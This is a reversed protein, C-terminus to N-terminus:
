KYHHHFEEEVAVLLEIRMPHSGFNVPSTSLAFDIHLTEGQSM